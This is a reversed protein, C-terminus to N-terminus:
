VVSKRDLIIGSFLLCMEPYTLSGDRFWRSISFGAIAQLAIAVAAISSQKLLANCAVGLYFFLGCFVFNNTSGAMMALVAIGACSVAVPLPSKKLVPLSALFVAYIVVEVSISWTPANFSYGSQFGWFQAMFLNLVFHFADNFPYIQFHGVSVWSLYQLLAVLCLTAFHLPYLRAVRNAVFWWGNVPRDLYTAAFVFGSLLWFFQVALGGQEYLPWLVSYFPQNPRSQPPFLNGAGAYFFHQYHWTLVSFAAVGRCIDIM